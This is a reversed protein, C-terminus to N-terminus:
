RRYEDLFILYIEFIQFLIHVNSLTKLLNENIQKHKIIEQPLIPLPLLLESSAISRLILSRESAISLVFYGSFLEPTTSCDNLRCILM